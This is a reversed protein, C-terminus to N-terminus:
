EAGEKKSKQTETKVAKTQRRVENEVAKKITKEVAKKSRKRAKEAGEKQKDEEIAGEVEKKAREFDLDAKQKARAKTVKAAGRMRELQTKDAAIETEVGGAKIAKLREQLKSHYEREEKFSEKITEPLTEGARQLRSREMAIMEQINPNMWEGGVQIKGTSTKGEDSRRATTVTGSGATVGTKAADVEKSVTEEIEKRSPTVGREAITGQDVPRTEQVGDPSIRRKGGLAGFGSVGASTEGYIGSAGKIAAYFGTGAPSGRTLVSKTLNMAKSGRGELVGGVGAIWPTNSALGVAVVGGGVLSMLHNIMLPALGVMLLGAITMFFGVLPGVLAFGLTGDLTPGISDISAVTLVLFLAQLPPVMIWGVAHRLWKRGFGRTLDFFYLFLLLPFVLAFTVVMFYRICAVIAIAPIIILYTLIIAALAALAGGATANQKLDEFNVLGSSEYIFNVLGGSIDLMVQYILPSMGIIIIGLILKSLMAKARARSRANTTKTIFYIATFMFAVIYLPILLDFFYPFFRDFGFSVKCGAAIESPMCYVTPNISIMWVIFDFGWKVLPTLIVMIANMISQMISGSSEEAKVLGAAAIMGLSVLKKKM